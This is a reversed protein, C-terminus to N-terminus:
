LTYHLETRAGKSLSPYVFSMSKSDDYFIGGGPDNSENFVTVPIKEFGRNVPVMTFAELGEVASFSDFFIQDGAFIRTFDTLMETEKSFHQKVRLSDKIIDFEYDIELSRIVANYDQMIVSRDAQLEGKQPYLITISLLAAALLFFMRLM